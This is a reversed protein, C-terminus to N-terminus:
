ESDQGGLAAALHRYSMYLWALLGAVVIPIILAGFSVGNGFRVDTVVRSVVSYVHIAIVLYIFNVNPLELLRANKSIRGYMISALIGLVGLILMFIGIIGAQSMNELINGPVSQGQQSLQRIVEDQFSSNLMLALLGGWLLNFVVGIINWVMLGKAIGRIRKAYREVLEENM